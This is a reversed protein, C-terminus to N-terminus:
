GITLRASFSLRSNMYRRLEGLVKNSFQYDHHLFQVPGIDFRM